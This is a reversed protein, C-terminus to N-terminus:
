AKPNEAIPVYIEPNVVFGPRKGSFYDIINQACARAMNQMAGDTAAGIHPTLLVNDLQFLPNDQAPPEPAPAEEAPQWGSQVNQISPEAEMPPEGAGESGAAEMPPEPEQSPCEQGESPQPATPQDATDQHGCEPSTGSGQERILAELCDCPLDGEWGGPIGPQIPSDAQDRGEMVRQWVRRFVEQDKVSCPIIDEM